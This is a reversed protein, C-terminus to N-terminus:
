IASDADAISQRAVAHYQIDLYLINRLLRDSFIRQQSIVQFGLSTLARLSPSNDPHVTAFLHRLGAHSAYDIRAQSLRKGLGQHRYNPDVLSFLMLACTHIPYDSPPLYDPWPNMKRLATYAIVKSDDLAIINTAGGQLNATFFERTQPYLYPTSKAAQAREFLSFIADCYGIDSKPAELTIIRIAM